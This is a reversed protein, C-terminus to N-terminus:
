KFHKINAEYQDKTKNNNKKWKNIRYEYFRRNLYSPLNRVRM